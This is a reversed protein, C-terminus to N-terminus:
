LVAWDFHQLPVNADPKIVDDASKTYPKYLNLMAYYLGDLLDDHKGRPYMILESRLEEMGKRLFVRKNFFYPEMTELRVSKATRPNIKKELGVIYREQNRLYDRLMEQYGVSEIHTRKPNYRKHQTLIAEALAMPKAHQRYYPLVYRNNDADVAISVITSYDATQKTSSAPDVGMFVYVPVQLPEDFKVGNKETINLIHHEGDGEGLHGDWWQIYEEKFLQDEDGVVQCQYERYFVSLRNISELEAKKNNLAKVSWQEPWLATKGDDSLAQYKFTKWGKMSALIEIMCTEHQPTGIVVIRGKKADLSPECGQLLWRLNYEMAEKTKTNNEDEPDDLIFLTPRQNGHKLGRVQQGTGKCVIITNDKLVVRDKTWVKASHQGYYGFIARLELSYDLVDKISQLLDIAHGQTKSCLVIFKPGEDFFIHHVPFVCAAISSKAHGRPAIINLKQVDKDLFSAMM